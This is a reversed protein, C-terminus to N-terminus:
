SQLRIKRNDWTTPNEPISVRVIADNAYHETTNGPLSAAPAVRDKFLETFAARIRNAAAADEVIVAESQLVVGRLEAWKHGASILVTVRSDRAINALKKTKLFTRFYVAGDSAVYWVPMPAARGDERITTLVADGHTGTFEAVEEASMKVGM